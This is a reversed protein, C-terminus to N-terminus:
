IEIVDCILYQMSFSHERSAIHEASCVIIWKAQLCKDAHQFIERNSTETTMSPLGEAATGQRLSSQAM